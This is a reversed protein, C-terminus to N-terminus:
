RGRELIHGYREVCLDYARQAGPSTAAALSALVERVHEPSPEVWGRARLWTEREETTM